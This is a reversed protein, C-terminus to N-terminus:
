TAAYEGKYIWVKVGIYGSRTLAPVAAYDINARLTQLPVSGGQYQYPERRAIEAGNVRGALLVKVGKAGSQMTREMAKKVVRRAPLRKILQEAIKTAVFYASLDPEKVEEIQLDIKPSKKDYESYGLNKIIYKKLEELGSGGRGIVMGPRTVHVIVRLSKLSREIEISTVGSSALKKMLSNRLTVDAKLYSIYRSPKTTFWRSKWMTTPSLPIRFSIPNVKHGM